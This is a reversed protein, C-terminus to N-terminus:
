KKKRKKVVGGKNFGLRKKMDKISNLLLKAKETTKDKMNNYLRVKENYAKKQGSVRGGIEALMLRSSSKTGMGAAKQEKKTLGQLKNIPAKQNEKLKRAKEAEKKLKDKDKTKLLTKAGKTLVGM